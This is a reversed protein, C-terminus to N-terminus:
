SRGTNSTTKGLNRRVSAGVWDPLFYRIRIAPIPNIAAAMSAPLTPSATACVEVVVFVVEGLEVVVTVVLSFHQSATVLCTRVSLGLGLLPLLVLGLVLLVVLLVLEVAVPELELTVFGGSAAPNGSQM